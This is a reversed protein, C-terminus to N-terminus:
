SMEEPINDYNNKQNELCDLAKLYSSLSTSFHDKKYDFDGRLIKVSIQKRKLEELEDPFEESNNEILEDLKAEIENLNKENPECNRLYQVIIIIM